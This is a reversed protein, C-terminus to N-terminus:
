TADGFAADARLRGGHGAHPLRLRSRRGFGHLRRIRRQRRGDIGGNGGDFPGSGALRPGIGERHRCGAHRTGPRARQQGGGAAVGNGASAQGRAQRCELREPGRRRRHEPRRDFGPVRGGRVGALGSRANCTACRALDPTTCGTAAPSGALATRGSVIWSDAKIFVVTGANARIRSAEAAVVATTSGMAVACVEDAVATAAWGVATGAAGSTVPSGSKVRNTSCTPGATTF